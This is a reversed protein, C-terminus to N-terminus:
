LGITNFWDNINPRNSKGVKNLEDALLRRKLATIQKEKAELERILSLVDRAHQERVKTFGNVVSEAREKAAKIDM